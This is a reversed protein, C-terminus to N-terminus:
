TLSLVTTLVAKRILDSCHLSINTNYKNCPHKYNSKVSEVPAQFTTLCGCLCTSPLYPPHEFYPKIDNSIHESPFFFFSLPRNIFIKNTLHVLSYNMEGTNQRINNSVKIMLDM